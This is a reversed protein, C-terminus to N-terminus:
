GKMSLLRSYDYCNMKNPLFTWLPFLSHDDRQRKLPTCIRKLPYASSVSIGVTLRTADVTAKTRSLSTLTITSGPMTGLGLAIRSGNAAKPSDGVLM